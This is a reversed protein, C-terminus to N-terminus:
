QIIRVSDKRHQKCHSNTHIYWLDEKWRDLIAGCSNCMEAVENHNVTTYCSEPVTLKYILTEGTDPHTITGWLVYEISHSISESYLFSGVKKTSSHPPCNAAEVVKEGGFAICMCAIAGIAVFKKLTKM